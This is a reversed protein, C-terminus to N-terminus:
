YKIALRGLQKTHVTHERLESFPFYIFVFLFAYSDIFGILLRYLHNLGAYM